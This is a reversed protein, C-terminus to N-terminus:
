SRCGVLPATSCLTLVSGGPLHQTLWYLKSWCSEVNGAAGLSVDPKHINKLMQHFRLVGQKALFCHTEMYQYWCPAISSIGDASDLQAQEQM